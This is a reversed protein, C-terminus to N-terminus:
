ESIIRVDDGDIEFNIDMSMQIVEFVERISRTKLDATFRKDKINEKVDEYDVSINYWRELEKFVELIPTNKFILRGEMWGYYSDADDVLDLKLKGSSREVTGKYGENVILINDPNNQNRLEVTGERVVVVVNDGDDYSRVDFSTGIVEVVANNTHIYFPRSRDPEIDFFAQGQLEISRKNSSFTEPIIMKSAANMTVRSGDGLEVSARQGANTHIEKLVLATTYEVQQPAYQLTFFVSTLAVLILAAVKMMNSFFQHRKRLKRFHLIRDRTDESTYNIRRAVKEWDEELHFEDLLSDQTVDESAKLIQGASHLIRRNESSEDLWEELMTLENDDISNDLYRVILPWVEEKEKM